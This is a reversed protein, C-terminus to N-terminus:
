PIVWVQAAACVACLLAGAALLVRRAPGGPFAAALLVLALGIVWGDHWWPLDASVFLRAWGEQFEGPPELLWHAPFALPDATAPGVPVTVPQVQVVAFPTVARHGFLWFFGAVAFWFVLIVPLALVLSSVRRGLAAGLAVALVALAVHQGLEPLSHLAETTRGPETGLTLGGLRRERIGLLVTFALTLLVLPASAVVRALARVGTGVPAEVGVSTRERHFSVAAVWSIALLLPASSIALETYAAGSWPEEQSTTTWMLWLSAALGLPLAPSRLTRRLESAALARVVVYSTRRRSPAVGRSAVATSM